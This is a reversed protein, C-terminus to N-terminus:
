LTDRSSLWQDLGQFFIGPFATWSLTNARSEAIRPVHIFGQLLHHTKDEAHSERPVAIPKILLRQLRHGPVM